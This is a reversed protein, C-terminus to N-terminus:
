NSAESSDRAHVCVHSERTPSVLEVLLQYWTNSIEDMELESHKMNSHHRISTEKLLRFNERIQAFEVIIVSLQM